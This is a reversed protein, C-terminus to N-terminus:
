AYHGAAQAPESGELRTIKGGVMTPGHAAGLAGKHPRTHFVHQLADKL